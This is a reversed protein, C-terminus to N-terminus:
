MFRLMSNKVYSYVSREVAYDWEAEFRDFIHTPYRISVDQSWFQSLAPSTDAKYM